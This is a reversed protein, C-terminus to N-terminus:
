PEVYESEESGEDSEGISHVTAEDSSATSGRVKIIPRKKIGDTNQQSSESECEFEGYPRANEHSGCYKDNKRKRTCCEGKSTKACCRQTVSVRKRAAKPLVMVSTFDCKELDNLYLERLTDLGMHTRESLDLLLTELNRRYMSRVIDTLKENIASVTPLYCPIESVDM